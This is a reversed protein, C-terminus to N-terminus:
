IWAPLLHLAALARRVHGASAVLHIEGVDCAPARLSPCRAFLHGVRLAAVDLARLEERDRRDDELRRPALAQPPLQRGLPEELVNAILLRPILCTTAAHHIPRTTPAAPSASACSAERACYPPASRISRM